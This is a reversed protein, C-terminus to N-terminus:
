EAALLSSILERLRASVEDPTGLADFTKIREPASKALERYCDYTKQVFNTSSQEIRDQEGSQARRAMATDPNLDFFITLDPMCNKIGPANIAKIWEIGLDRGAGQYAISSDIYRDCVVTKGATRAPSIVDKVHQARAAAFLLAEAHDTMEPTDKDLVLDRIKESITGGGPERTILLDHGRAELDDCLGKLQTTKGCGDSGELTIFLGQAPACEGLLLAALDSVTPAIHAAGAALLEQQDGYGYLVGVGEIHNALAGEIDYKRDGVMCARRYNAPLAEKVLYPKDSHETNPNAAVVKDFFHFLGFHRLIKECFLTPKSTAIGIYAGNARLSRLLHYIGKYVSNEQWGITSFRERYLDIGLRATDDDMGIVNSFSEFLPPGIFKKLVSLPQEPYGLKTLAYQVSKTIGPESETLTGDLDFIIADFPLIAM